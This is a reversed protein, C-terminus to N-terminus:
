NEEHRYVPKIKSIDEYNLFSFMTKGECQTRQLIFAAPIHANGFTKNTQFFTM